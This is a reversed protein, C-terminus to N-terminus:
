VCKHRYCFGSCCPPKSNPSCFTGSPVCIKPSNISKANTKPKTPHRKSKITTATSSRRQHQYHAEINLTLFCLSVIFIM